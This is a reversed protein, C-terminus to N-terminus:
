QVPLINVIIFEYGFLYGKVALLTCAIQIHQSDIAWDKGNGTNNVTGQKLLLSISVISTGIYRGYYYIHELV